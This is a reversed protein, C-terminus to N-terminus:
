KRHPQARASAEEALKADLAETVLDLRTLMAQLGTQLEWQHIKRASLAGHVTAHRLEAALEIVGLWSTPGQTGRVWDALAHRKRLGLFEILGEMNERATGGHIAEFPGPILAAVAKNCRLTAAAATEVETKPTGAGEGGLLLAARVQEFGAQWMVLRWQQGRTEPEVPELTAVGIDLHPRSQYM